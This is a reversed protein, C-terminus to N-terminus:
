KVLLDASQGRRCVHRHKKNKRLVSKAAVAYYTGPALASIPTFEWAGATDTQDSGILTDPPNAARQFVKVTRAASCRASTSEATGSFTGENKGGNKVKAKVVVDYKATHASAVAAFAVSTLAVAALLKLARRM